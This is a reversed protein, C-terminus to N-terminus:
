YSKSAEGDSGFGDRRYHFDVEILGADEGYTDVAHGAQRLLRCGIMASVGTITSMNISGLDCYRHMNATGDNYDTAGVTALSSFTTAIDAIYYELEWYVNGTATGSPMWHVHTEVATGQRWDHPMQAWFTVAESATADFGLARVLGLLEIQDPKSTAKNVAVASVPFRLDDWADINYMRVGSTTNDLVIKTAGAGVRLSASVDINTASVNGGFISGTVDGTVNGTVGGVLAGQFTSFSATRAGGKERIDSRLHSSGM